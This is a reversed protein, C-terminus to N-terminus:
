HAIIITFVYYLVVVLAFSYEDYNTTNTRTPEDVFAVKAVVCFKQCVLWTVAKNQSM